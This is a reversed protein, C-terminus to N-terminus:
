FEQINISIAALVIAVRVMMVMGVPSCGFSHARSPAEYQPLPISARLAGLVGAQAMVPDRM